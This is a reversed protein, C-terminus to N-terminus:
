NNYRKLKGLYKKTSRKWASRGGKGNSYTGDIHLYLIYRVDEEVQEAFEIKTLKKTSLPRRLKGNEQLWTEVQPRFMM